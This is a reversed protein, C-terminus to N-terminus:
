KGGFVNGVGPLGGPLAGKVAANAFPSTQANINYNVNPNLSKQYSDLFSQESKNDMYNPQAGNYSSIPSYRVAQAVTPDSVLGNQTGHSPESGGVQGNDNTGFVEQQGTKKDRGGATLPANPDTKLGLQELTHDMSANKWMPANFPNWNGGNDNGGGM